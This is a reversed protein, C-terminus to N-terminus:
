FFASFIPDNFLPNNSSRTHTSSSINVIAPMVKELMPALSPLLQGNVRTPLEACASQFFIILILYISNYNNM